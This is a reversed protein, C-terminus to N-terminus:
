RPTIKASLIKELNESPFSCSETVTKGDPGILIFAPYMKINYSYELMDQKSGDLMTWGFGASKMRTCAPTFSSDTLITIVQLNVSYKKYWSNLIGYEALAAANDSRAFSLLIYKGRFSAISRENGSEDKLNFGPAPLGSHNTLFRESIMGALDRIYGSNGEDRISTILKMIIDPPITGDYWAPFLNLLIIYDGLETNSVKGDNYIIERLGSLSSSAIANIFENKLSGNLVSSFYRSFRQEILDTYAPNGPVFERNIMVSDEIRGSYEGSGVMNIMIMRFKVFDTFLDPMGPNSLSNLKEIIGPIGGRDINYAVRDAIRNYAQNYEADFKRVLNNFDLSDNIIEPIMRVEEFFPNQEEERPKPIYDSMKIRYERGETVFLHYNFVGTRIFVTGTGKVPIDVSFSGTKDCTIRSFPRLSKTVPDTLTLIRMETGAYGKGSGSIKVDQGSLVQSLM